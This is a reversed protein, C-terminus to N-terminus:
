RLAEALEAVQQDDPWRAAMGAHLGTLMTRLRVSGTLRAIDAARLAVESAQEADGARVHVAALYVLFEAAVESSQYDEPLGAYGSELESVALDRYRPDGALYGLAVGRQCAFWGPAMWYTWSRRDRPRDELLAALDHAQQLKRETARGDGALALARAQLDAGWARQGAAVTKDRQAAEGLGIASGIDGALLASGGRLALVTAIMTRDGIETAWELSQAYRTRAAAADGTNQHLWGGFQAWQQAVDIVAHRVPGRAEAALDEITALQATVPGLVAASGLSDEASRQAALVSTLSDVAAQDVVRPHAQAWALRERGDADLAGLLSAGAIAAAGALVRRRNVLAMLAGGADLVEDLREAVAPTAQKVGRCLKNVYGSDYHSRRALERQSMGREALLRSLEDAFDTM